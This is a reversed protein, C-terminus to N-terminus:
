APLSQRECQPGSEIWILEAFKQSHNNNHNPSPSKDKDLTVVLKHDVPELSDTFCPCCVLVQLVESKFHLIPVMGLKPLKQYFVDLSVPWTEIVNHPYLGMCGFFM